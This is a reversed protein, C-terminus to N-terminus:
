VGAYIRGPNLTQGPDFSEKVRRTLAALGPEQPSFASASARLRDPAALLVAGGGFAVICAQVAEAGEGATRLWILGGGWDYFAEAEITERLRGVLKPGSAPVTSIRWLMSDAKPAWAFPTADRIASWLARSQAEDLVSIEGFSKLSTKLMERRYVVSPAVGEIRLATAASRTASVEEVGTQQAIAVPLHAAASVDAASGLAASMAGGAAHDDLGSILITEETEPRPLVKVTVETMVALTGWSGALLKCLDYGTVNKVVRGGSKFMEGRGSVAAAGLFHDRAAGAKIRRPGSLNAALTGGLTGGGAPLGFLPGADMPEFALHQNRSALLDNIDALPTGSRASLVLEEPEYLTVGALGSMQLVRDPQSLRGIGRKTGQGVVELTKGDALASRIASQVGEADVPKFIDAM